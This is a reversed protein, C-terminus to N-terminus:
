RFPPFDGGFGESYVCVCKGFMSRVRAIKTKTKGGRGLIFASDHENMMAQHPLNVQKINICSKSLCEGPSDCFPQLFRRSDLPTQWFFCVESESYEAGMGRTIFLDYWVVDMKVVFIM